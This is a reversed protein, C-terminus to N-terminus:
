LKTKTVNYGKSKKKVIMSNNFAIKNSKTRYKGVKTKIM